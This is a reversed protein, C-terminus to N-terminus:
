VAFAQDPRAIRMGHAELQLGEEASGYHYLVMRAREADSYERQLDDLGSHSPNGLLGSDHFLVEGSCAQHRVLEPIPRSDGSYLFRGRLHLGFARGAGHHRVAHVDFWLGACWFGSGVPILQFADWLNGGGEALVAPFEGVRAHLDAVLTAPVFLRPPTGGGFRVRYFLTELGGIHDLHLHTLYIAQPLQQYRREYARWASFGCDIMLVPAGDRELVAASNGLEVAHAGGVGLFRLEANFDSM